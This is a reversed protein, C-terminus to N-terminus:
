KILDNVLYNKVWLLDKPPMKKGFIINKNESYLALYYRGTAPNQMVEIDEIELKNIEGKKRSKLPFKHVIVFKYKKIVIKDRRFLLFILLVIVAAAGWFLFGCQGSVGTLIMVGALCVIIGWAILNYADWRIKASKIVKKDSKRVLFVSKPLPENFDYPSSIKGEQHLTIISKDLDEAERRVIGENTIMLAPLGLKKAYYKWKKRINKGSMSIYLPVTKAQNKHLAEIIYRNRTLIGFQFFEIRLLVGDYKKILDRYTTKHGNRKRNIITFSKGDCFIKKYRLYGGVSAFIIWFGIIIIVADFFFPHILPQYDSTELAPFSNEFTDGALSLYADYGGLLILVLACFIGAYMVYFPMRDSAKAPLNDLNLVFKHSFHEATKIKKAM